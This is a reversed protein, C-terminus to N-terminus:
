VAVAAQQRKDQRLNATPIIGRKEVGDPAILRHAAAMESNRKKQRGLKHLCTFDRRKEFNQKM